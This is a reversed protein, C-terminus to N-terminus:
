SSHGGANRVCERSKRCVSRVLAYMERGTLGRRVIEEMHDGELCEVFIRAAAHYYDKAVHTQIADLDKYGEFCRYGYPVEADKCLEFVPVGPENELVKARFERFTKEYLEAKEPKVRLIAHIFKM